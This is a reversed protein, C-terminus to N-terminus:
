KKLAEYDKDTFDKMPDWNPFVFDGSDVKAGGQKVKELGEKFGKTMKENYQKLAGDPDKEAGTIIAQLIENFSPKIKPQGMGGIEALVKVAEPNRVAPDPRLRLVEQHLKVFAEYEPYPYKSKDANLKEIPSLAVGSKMFREYFLESALGEEIFKGVAEPHKTNASVMFGGNSALTHHMIMPEGKPTPLAAMGFKADPTDRKILWMRWRGDFLFAAKGQGFLAGAEPHKLNYSSPLISGDKKLDLLFKVSDSISKSDYTYSGTKYNFGNINADLTQIGSAFGTVTNTAYGNEAMAFVVGFVDGKGKDTVTKAMSRLEDWTKPPKEPDLGANKLVDKNYYLLQNMVPGFIPWTYTKGGIVNVGESFAGAYFQKKWTDTVLGDLPRIWKSAVVQQFDINQPMNFIDPLDNSTVAAQIATNYEAWPMYKMEVRIKGKNKENFIKVMQQGPSEDGKMFDHPGWVRIVAEQGSSSTGGGSGEKSDGEGGSCGALVASALTVAALASSWVKRKPIM